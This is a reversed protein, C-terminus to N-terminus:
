YQDTWKKYTVWEENSPIDLLNGIIPIRKPGPPYPLRGSRVYRLTYSFVALLFATVPLLVDLQI